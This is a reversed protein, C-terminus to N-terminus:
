EDRASEALEFGAWVVESCSGCGVLHQGRELDEESIRYSGGCRCKHCWTLSGTTAEEEEFEELSIIQAPRPGTSPYQFQLQADYQVRLHPSSLTTYADKISAIDISSSSATRKPTM